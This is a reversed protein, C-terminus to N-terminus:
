RHAYAYIDKTTGKLARNHLIREQSPLPRCQFRAQIFHTIPVCEFVRRNEEAIEIFRIGM